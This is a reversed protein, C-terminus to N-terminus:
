CITKLTPCDAIVRLIAPDLSVGVTSIVHGLYLVEDAFLSCKSKKLELGASSNRDFEAPLDAAHESRKKSFVIM